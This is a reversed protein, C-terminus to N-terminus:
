RIHLSQDILQIVYSRSCQHERAIEVFSKGAFHEDRWITGKVLSELKSKPLDLPGSGNGLRVVVTGKRAQRTHYPIVFRYIHGENEAQAGLRAIDNLREILKKLCIEVVLNEAEVTVRQLVTHLNPISSIGESISELMVCDSEADMGLMSSLKVVDKM